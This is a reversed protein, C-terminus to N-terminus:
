CFFCLASSFTFTSPHPAPLFCCSKTPFGLLSIFFPLLGSLQSHYSVHSAPPFLFPLVTHQHPHPPPPPCPFTPPFPPPTVPPTPACLFVGSTSVAQFFFASLWLLRISHAPPRSWPLPLTVGRPLSCSFSFPPPHHHYTSHTTTHPPPARLGAYPM